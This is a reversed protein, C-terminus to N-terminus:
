DQNLDIVFIHRNGVGAPSLNFGGVGDSLFTGFNSTIDPIGDSNFDATAMFYGASGPLPSNPAEIFSAKSCGTEAQAAFPVAYIALILSSLFPLMIRKVPLIKVSANSM